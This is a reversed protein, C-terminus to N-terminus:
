RHGPCDMLARAKRGVFRAWPPADWSPKGLMATLLSGLVKAVRAAGGALSKSIGM